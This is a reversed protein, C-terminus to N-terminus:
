RAAVSDTEWLRLPADLVARQVADAVTRRLPGVKTNDRSPDVRNTLLVVFLQKEPDAWVSTGTFGTHGFSRMSFYRGASSPSSPTDWGLARSQDRLQRATWRAITEARLIRVGHYEGGNLLMQVFVGLDRASSFLGAHGAVGGLAWANEDHVVGWVQGGRFEQIETPAIRPKLAEPPNFMTDHMGLPGFVREAVLADLTKGSIRELVLQLVIMNWDSYTYERGPATVIPKANIRELYAERGKIERYLFQYQRMGSTHLLLMRITIAAKDPANFEPLYHVVTSDLDLKGEEEMMMAATTTAIVKTLSAMDYITSDNAPPATPAWDSHGWGHTYVVRGHHGIALAIGPSAHDAIAATMISDLARPLAASIGAAELPTVPPAMPRPSPCGTLALLAAAAIPAFARTRPM